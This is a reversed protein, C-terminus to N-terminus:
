KARHYSPAMGMPALALQQKKELTRLLATSPTLRDRGTKKSVPGAVRHLPSAGGDGVFFTERGAPFHKMMALFRM